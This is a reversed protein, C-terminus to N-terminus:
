SSCVSLFVGTPMMILSATSSALFNPCSPAPCNTLPTRAVKTSSLSDQRNGSIPDQGKDLVSLGSSERFHSESRQRPCLTRVIGPFPIRVKTSSLSDQRNRSLSDQGVISSLMHSIYIGDGLDVCIDAAHKRLVIQQMVQQDPSFHAIAFVM